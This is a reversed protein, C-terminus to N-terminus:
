SCIFSFDNRILSISDWKRVYEMCFSMVNRFYLYILAANTRRDQPTWIPPIKVKIENKAKPGTLPQEKKSDDIENPKKEDTKEIFKINKENENDCPENNASNPDEETNEGDEIPPENQSERDSDNEKKINIEDNIKINIPRTEDNGGNGSDNIMLDDDETEIVVSFSRLLSVGNGGPNSSISEENWVVNVLSNLYDSHSSTFFIPVCVHLIFLNSFFM